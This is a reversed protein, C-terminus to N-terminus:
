HFVLVSKVVTVYPMFLRYYGFHHTNLDNYGVLALIKTLILLKPPNEPSSEKVM